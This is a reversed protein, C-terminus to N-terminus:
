QQTFAITEIPRGSLCNGYGPLPSTETMMTEITAKGDIMVIGDRMGAGAGAGRTVEALSESGGRKTGTERRKEGNGTNAMIKAVLGDM